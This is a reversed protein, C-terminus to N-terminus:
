FEDSMCHGAEYEDGSQKGHGGQQGCLRTSRAASRRRLALASAAAETRLGAPVEGPPIRGDGRVEIKGLLLVLLDPRVRPFKAVPQEVRTVGDLLGFGLEFVDHVFLDPIL